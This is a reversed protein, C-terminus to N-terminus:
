WLWPIFASNTKKYKIYDSYHKCLAREEVNAKLALVIILLIWAALKWYAFQCLVIGLGGFFLSSYMPHRIYKYAGYTILKGSEKPIPRVNFNSPRNTLLAWVSIGGALGILLLGYPSLRYHDIPWVIIVLLLFQAFVYRM